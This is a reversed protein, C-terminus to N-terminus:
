EDTTHFHIESFDGHPVPILASFGDLVMKMELAHKSRHDVNGLIGRM